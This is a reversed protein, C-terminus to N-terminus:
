TRFEGNHRDNYIHVHGGGDVNQRNAAVEFAFKAADATDCAQALLMSSLALSLATVGTSFKM